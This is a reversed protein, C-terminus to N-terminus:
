LACIGGECGENEVEAEWEIEDYQDKSVSAGIPIFELPEDSRSGNRYFTTGKLTPMFEKVIGHLEEVPYDHPLNITKSVANDVHHQVINQVQLHERPSLDYAGHVKDGYDQFEKTMVLTRISGEGQFRRRIYRAAFVPEIGSSVQHVMSTTGTPAVTLIACNRMPARVLDLHNKFFGSQFMESNFLPFPGKERALEQSSKYAEIRIFSMLKDVFKTDKYTLGLELLLTHLGMIGLGLRREGVCMRRIDELPYENVDLVNDLFRVASRISKSLTSWDMIGNYVFRPLVLAGLCCCGYDPLWIEGCPNTSTLDHAYHVNSMEEARRQNLLGPEGSQWANEVLRKFMPTDLAEYSGNKPILISVNANNLANLNLKKDIFEEADPHLMSLTHMMAVRRGGGGRIVDGVSNCIEMLSVAGTSEGGRSIHSGRARIPTFNIGVGGGLSSIKMIDSVTRGWGEISDETPVVFCNLMQQTKRGAGYWIRGGPMFKGSVIEEYFENTYREIKSTNEAKSVAIAIRLSAESWTEDAHVAYREKFIRDGLGKTQFSM